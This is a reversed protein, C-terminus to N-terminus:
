PHSMCKSAEVSHTATGGSFVCETDCYCTCCAFGCVDKFGILYIILVVQLHSLVEEVSVVIPIDNESIAAMNDDVPPYNHMPELLTM